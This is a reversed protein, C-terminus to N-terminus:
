TPQRFSLLLRVIALLLETLVVPDFGAEWTSVVGSRPAGDLLGRVERDLDDIAVPESSSVRQAFALLLQYLQDWTDDNEVLRTLFAVGIDDLRNATVQAVETAMRLLHKLWERVAPKDALDPVRALRLLWVLFTIANMPPVELLFRRRLPMVQATLRKAM